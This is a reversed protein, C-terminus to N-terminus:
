GGSGFYCETQCELENITITRLREVSGKLISRVVSRFLIVTGLTIMYAPIYTYLQM